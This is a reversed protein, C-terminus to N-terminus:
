GRPPPETPVYLGLRKKVELSEVEKAKGYTYVGAATLGAILGASGGIEWRLGIQLAVVTTVAVGLCLSLIPYWRSHLSPFARKVVEVLGATVGSTFGVLAMITAVYTVLPTDM